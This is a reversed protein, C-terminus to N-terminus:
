CPYDGWGKIGKDWVITYAAGYAHVHCLLENTLLLRFRFTERAREVNGKIFARGMAASYAEPFLAAVDLLSLEVAADLDDDETLRNPSSEPVPAGWAWLVETNTWARSEANWKFINHGSYDLATLLSYNDVVFEVHDDLWYEYETAHGNGHDWPFRAGSREEVIRKLAEIAGPFLVEVVQRFMLNDESEDSELLSNVSEDHRGYTWIDPDSRAVWLKKDADWVKIVGLDWDIALESTDAMLLLGHCTPNRGRHAAFVRDLAKLAGPFLVAAEDATLSEVNKM